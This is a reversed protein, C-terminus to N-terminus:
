SRPRVRLAGLRRVLGERISIALRRRSDSELLFAVLASADGRKLRDIRRAYQQTQLLAIRRRDVSAGDFCPATTDLSDLAHIMDDLQEPTLRYSLSSVRRRYRYAAEPMYRYSFGAATWRAMLDFDEGIVLTERYPSELAALRDKRLIPKLYGLEPAPPDGLGGNMLDGFSLSRSTPWVDPNIWPHDRTPDGEYFATMNDAIADVSRREAEQTMRALRDPAIVDDADVIAIWRGQAQAIALNRAAAPGRGAGDLVRVRRDDQEHQALRERTADTSQDDVIIIETSELSQRRISFLAEDIYEAVNFAAVVVTVVPVAPQGPPNLM